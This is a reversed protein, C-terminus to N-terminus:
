YFTTYWSSPSARLLWRRERMGGAGRQLALSINNVRTEWIPLPSRRGGVRSGWATQIVVAFCRFLLLALFFFLAFCGTWWLVSSQLSISWSLSRVNLWTLSLSLPFFAAITTRPVAVSPLFRPICVTRRGWAVDPNKNRRKKDWRKEKAKKEM